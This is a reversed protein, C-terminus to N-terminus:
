YLTNLVTSILPHFDKFQRFHTTDESINSLDKVIQFAFTLLSFASANQFFISIYLQIALSQFRIHTNSIDFYFTVDPQTINSLTAVSLYFFLRSPTIHDLLYACLTSAKATSPSSLRPLRRFAEPLRCCVKIRLYRFPSVRGALTM